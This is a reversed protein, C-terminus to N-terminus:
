LDCKRAPNKELIARLRSLLFRSYLQHGHETPHIDDLYFVNWLKVPDKTGRMREGNFDEQLMPWPDLVEIKENEIKKKLLALGENLLPSSNYHQFSSPSLFFVCPIRQLRCAAGISALWHDFETWARQSNMSEPHELTRRANFDQDRAAIERMEAKGYTAIKSKVFFDSFFEYLRLRSRLYFHVSAADPVQHYDIGVGGLRKLYHFPEVLDNAQFQLLVLDPCQQMSAQLDYYQQFTSYGPVAYNLAEINLQNELLPVFTKEYPVNFGFSVSDGLVAVRKKESKTGFVQGVRHESNTRFPQTGFVGAHDAKWRYVKEPDYEFHWDGTGHQVPRYFIRAGGELLAFSAFILFLGILWDPILSNPARPAKTSTM